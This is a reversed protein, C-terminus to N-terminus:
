VGARAEQDAGAVAEAAQRANAAVERASVSMQNMGAALMATQEHLLRTAAAAEGTARNLGETTQGLTRSAEEMRGAVAITEARAAKLALGLTGFEDTRGTYVYEALRRDANGITEGARAVLRQLPRTLLRAGGWGFGATLALAVAKWAMTTDVVGVLLLPMASGLSLLWLRLRFSPTARLRRRGSGGERLGRYLAEARGVAEAEPRVRVSQYEVPEGDRYVPSAFADVWYRDGNRCRNKVMGIWPRGTKLTKWLDEFAAQPMDPHRVVNHSKGVLEEEPFGSVRLFDPSVSKIVGSLETTSLIIDDERVPEERGTVPLNLKM